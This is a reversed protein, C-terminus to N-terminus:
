VGQGEPMMKAERAGRGLGQVGWRGGATMSGSQCTYSLVYHQTASMDMHAHICYGTVAVCHCGSFFTNSHAVWRCTGWLKSATLQATLRDHM